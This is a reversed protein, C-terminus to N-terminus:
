WGRPRLPKRDLYAAAGGGTMVRLRLLKLVVDSKDVDEERASM